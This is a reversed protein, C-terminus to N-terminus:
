ELPELQVELGLHSGSALRIRKGAGASDGWEHFGQSTVHLLLDKDPTILIPRNSYSSGMFIPRDPHDM